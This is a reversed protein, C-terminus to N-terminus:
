ENGENSHNQLFLKLDDANIFIKDEFFSCPILGNVIHKILDGESLDLFLASKKFSIWKTPNPYVEGGRFAFSTM